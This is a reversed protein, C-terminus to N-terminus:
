LGYDQLLRIVKPQDTNVRLSRRFSERAERAAEANSKGSILWANLANVGVGNLSPWHDPDMEVGRRYADISSAYDKLRFQAWGLREYANASPELKILVEATNKAEDFRNERALANLLNMLLPGSPEMLELAADYQRIADADRGVQEYVAGLNARAPGNAPDIQVAKEAFVLANNVEGLQLYTTAMNFNAQPNEPEITLARHYAKIADVLRDVMQLAFGYGHQAEFNRPELRAAREYYRVAQDYDRQDIYIGGIGIYADGVTPNEALIERFMAMAAAYDGADKAQNADSLRVEMALDTDREVLSVGVDASEVQPGDSQCGVACVGLLGLLPLTRPRVNM